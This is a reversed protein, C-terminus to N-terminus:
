LRVNKGGKKKKAGKEKTSPIDESVTPILAGGQEYFGSGDDYNPFGIKGYHLTEIERTAGYCLNRAHFFRSMNWDEPAMQPVKKGDPSTVIRDHFEFQFEHAWSDHPVLVMCGTNVLLTTGTARIFDTDDFTPPLLELDTFSLRRQSWEGHGMAVSTHGERSKIANAVSLCVMDNEIATDVLFDVWPRNQDEYPHGTVEIDSHLMVFVDALGQRWREYFRAWLSNFTLCLASSNFWVWTDVDTTRNPYGALAEILTNATQCEVRNDHLPLAFFM